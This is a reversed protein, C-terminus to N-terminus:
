SPVCLQHLRFSSDVLEVEFFFLAQMQTFLIFCNSLSVELFFLVLSSLYFEYNFYYYNKFVHEYLASSLGAAFTCYFIFLCTRKHAFAIFVFVCYVSM